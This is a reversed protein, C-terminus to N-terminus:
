RLTIDLSSNEHKKAPNGTYVGQKETNKIIVAGAGIICDEAITLNNALTSNVGFFCNDGITCLGSIVVHSSIFCNNGITSHHGIHNGSWLINNNGIKVYPQITNDEFIFCNEGIETNHWVFARSSIYSAIKYGKDKAVLYLRTRVLNLKGYTLATFVSYNEGPPYHSEIDELPVIPLNFLTKKKIYAREESFAIVEYNSDHTFYEHAIEGFPGTGIVILKKKM